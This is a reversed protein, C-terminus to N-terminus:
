ESEMEDERQREVVIEVLTKKLRHLIKESEGFAERFKESHDLLKATEGTTLAAKLRDKDKLFEQTEEDVSM